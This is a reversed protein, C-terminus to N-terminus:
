FLNQMVYKYDNLPYPQQLIRVFTTNKNATMFTLRINGSFYESRLNNM